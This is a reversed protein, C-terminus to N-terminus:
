SLFNGAIDAVVPRPLSAVYNWVTMLALMLLLCSFVLISWTTGIWQLLSGMIFFGLSYCGLVVLRTISTVRGRIRDPIVSVSYTFATVEYVPNVANLALTIAALMINNYAFFYLAFILFSLTTTAILLLPVNIFFISVMAFGSSLNAIVM